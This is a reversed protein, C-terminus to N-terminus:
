AHETEHIEGTDADVWERKAYRRMADRVEKTLPPRRSATATRTSRSLRHTFAIVRDIYEAM